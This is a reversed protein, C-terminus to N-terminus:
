GRKVQAAFLDAPYVKEKADVSRGDCDRGKFNGIFMLNPGYRCSPLPIAKGDKKRINWFTSYGATPQGTRPRGGTTFPRRGVGLHINAYLMMYPASRHLDMNINKGKGNRFVSLMSARVSLDHHWMDQIDFDSVDVDCSDHIGIAIHGQRRPSTKHSRDKTVNASVGSVSIFNSYRVVFNLDANIVKVNKVWSFATEELVIANHGDEKLHEKSRKWGFDVSFDQFGCNQPIDDSDVSHIRPKWAVRVDVPLQRELIIEDGRIDSIRSMFRVLDRHGRLSKLCNDGCSIKSNENHYMHGLLSQSTPGNKPDSMFLKIWQGIELEGSDRVFISREGAGADLVVDTLFTPGKGSRIRPGLIQFFGKSRSYTDDDNGAQLDYYKMSHPIKILTKGVGAGRLVVNSSEITVQSELLITGAPM